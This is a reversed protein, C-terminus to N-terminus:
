TPHTTIMRVGQPDLNLYRILQHLIVEFPTRQVDYKKIIYVTRQFEMTTDSWKPAHDIPEIGKGNNKWTTSQNWLSPNDCGM